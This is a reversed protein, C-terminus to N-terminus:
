LSAGWLRSQLEQKDRRNGAFRLVENELDIECIRCGSIRAVSNFLTLRCVEENDQWCIDTDNYLLCEVCVPDLYIKM